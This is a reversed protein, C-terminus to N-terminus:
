FTSNYPVVAMCILSLMKNRKFIGYEIFRGDYLSWNYDKMVPGRAEKWIKLKLLIVYFYVM